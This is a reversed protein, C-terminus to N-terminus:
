GVNSARFARALLPTGEDVVLDDPADAIPDVGPILTSRAGITAADTPAGHDGDTSGVTVDAVAEADGDAPVDFLELAEVEVQRKAREHDLRVPRPSPTPSEDASTLSWLRPSGTREDHSSWGYPVTLHDAHATCLALVKDEDGPLDLM